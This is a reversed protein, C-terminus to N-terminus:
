TLDHIKVAAGLKRADIALRGKHLKEFGHVLDVADLADAEGRRVRFAVPVIQHFGVGAEGLKAGARVEGHM